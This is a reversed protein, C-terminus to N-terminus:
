QGQTVGARLENEGAATAACHKCQWHQEWGLLGQM